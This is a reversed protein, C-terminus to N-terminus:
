EEREESVREGLQAAFEEDGLTSRFIQEHETFHRRVIEILDVFAGLLIAFLFIFFLGLYFAFQKPSDRLAGLRAGLVLVVPIALLLYFSTPRQANAKRLGARFYMWLTKRPPLRNADNEDM